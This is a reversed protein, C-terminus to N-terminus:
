ILSFSLGNIAWSKSYLGSFGKQATHSSEILLDDRPMNYFDPLITVRGSGVRQDMRGQPCSHSPRSIVNVPRM